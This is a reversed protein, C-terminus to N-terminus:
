TPSPARHGARPRPLIGDDDLSGGIIQVAVDGMHLRAHALDPCVDFVSDLGTITLPRLVVRTCAVLCMRIGATEAAERAAVLVTIGAAGFFTVETLDVVLQPCTPRVHDLLRDRLLPSTSSDLEGCVALVVADPPAPCVTVTLVEGAPQFDPRVAATRAPRGTSVRQLLPAMPVDGQDPLTAGARNSTLRITSRVVSAWDREDFIWIM